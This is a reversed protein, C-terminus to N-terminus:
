QSTGPGHCVYGSYSREGGGGLTPLSASADDVCGCVENVFSTHRVDAEVVDTLGGAGALGLQVVVEAVLVAQDVVHDVALSLADQGEM